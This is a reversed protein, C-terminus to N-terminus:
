LWLDTSVRTRPKDANHGHGRNKSFTMDTDADTDAIHFNEIDRDTDTDAIHFTKM